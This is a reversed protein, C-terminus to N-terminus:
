EASVAKPSLRGADVCPTVGHRGGRSLVALPREMLRVRAAPTLPYEARFEEPGAAGAAHARLVVELSEPLIRCTVGARRGGGQMARVLAAPLPVVTRPLGLDAGDIVLHSEEEILVRLCGPADGTRFGVDLARAGSTQFHRVRLQHMGQALRVTGMATAGGAASVVLRGDVWLWAGDDAVLTFTCADAEDVRLFTEWETVFDHRLAQAISGALGLAITKDVSTGLRPGSRVSEPTRESSAAVEGLRWAAVAVGPKTGAEDVFLRDAPLPGAGGASVVGMGMGAEGEGPNLSFDVVAGVAPTATGREGPGVLPSPPGHPWDMRLPNAHPKKGPPLRIHTESFRGGEAFGYSWLTDGDQEWGWEAYHFTSELGGAWAAFAAELADWSGLLRVLAERSERAHSQRGLRLMEDRYAALLPARAGDTLFFNALLFALGRPLDSGDHIERVTRPRARLAALGEDLFDHTAPKDFVRVTLRGASEEYVHSALAEAVGENFWWPMTYCTGALAQQFLHTCEHLLIYRHQYQLSGGAYAYTCRVGDFTIGGGDFNWSLGDSELAAALNRASSAYVVAMRRRDMGEPERGFLAVYHPWALELLTLHFRARDAPEDTKLAYHRSVYWAFGPTNHVQGGAFTEPITQGADSVDIRVPTSTRGSVAVDAALADPPPVAGRAAAGAILMVMFAFAAGVARFRRRSVGASVSSHGWFGV